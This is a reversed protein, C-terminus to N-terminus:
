NELDAYLRKNVICKKATNGYKKCFLHIYWKEVSRAYPMTNYRGIIDVKAESFSSLMDHAIGNRKCDACHNKLRTRLDNTSGVYIQGNPFTFKYVVPTHNLVDEVSENCHLKISNYRLM